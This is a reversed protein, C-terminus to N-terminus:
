IIKTNQNPIIPEGCLECENKHDHHQEHECNVCLYSGLFYLFKLIRM